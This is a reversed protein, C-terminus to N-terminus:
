HALGNTVCYLTSITTVSQAIVIVSWIALTGKQGFSQYFIQAMPQGVDSDLLAQIDGGMFFALVVNIAPDLNAHTLLISVPPRNGWGLVGAIGIATVIAWPVAVAANSAEESIHVSSDFSGSETIEDAHFSEPNPPLVRVSLGCLLWSVLSSRTDKRGDTLKPIYAQTSARRSKM